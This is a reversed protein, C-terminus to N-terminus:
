SCIRPNNGGNQDNGEGNTHYVDVSANSATKLEEAVNASSASNVPASTIVPPQMSPAPPIPKQMFPEQGIKHIMSLSAENDSVAPIESTKDMRAHPSYMKLFVLFLFSFIIFIGILLFILRRSLTTGRPAKLQNLM